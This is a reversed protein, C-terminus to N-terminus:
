HTTLRLMIKRPNFRTRKQQREDEHSVFLLPIKPKSQAVYPFSSHGSPVVALCLSDMEKFQRNMRSLYITSTCKFYSYARFEYTQNKDKFRKQKPKAQYLVNCMTYGNQPASAIRTQLDAILVGMRADKSQLNSLNLDMFKQFDINQCDNCLFDTTIPTKKAQKSPGASYLDADATRKRQTRPIGALNSTENPHPSCGDSQFGDSDFSSVSSVSSV